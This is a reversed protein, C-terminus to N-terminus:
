RELREFGCESGSGSRGWGGGGCRCPFAEGGESLATSKRWWGSVLGVGIGGEQGGEGAEDHPVSLEGTGMGM